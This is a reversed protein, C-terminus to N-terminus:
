GARELGDSHTVSDERANSGEGVVLPEDTIGSRHGILADLTM